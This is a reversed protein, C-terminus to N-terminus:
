PRQFPAVVRKWLVFSAVTPILMPLAISMSYRLAEAASKPTPPGSGPMADGSPTNPPYMEGLGLALSPVIVIAGAIGIVPLWSRTTPGFLLGYLAVVSALVILKFPQYQYSFCGLFTLTVAPYYTLAVSVVGAVIRLSTNM